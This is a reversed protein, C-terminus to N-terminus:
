AVGTSKDEDRKSMDFGFEAARKLAPTIKLIPVKHKKTQGAYTSRKAFQKAEEQTTFDGHVRTSGDPLTESVRWREGHGWAPEAPVHEVSFNRDLGEKVEGMEVRGGYKKVFKNLEKPLVDDYLKALGPKLELPKDAFDWHAVHHSITNTPQRNGILDLLESAEQPSLRRQVGNVTGFVDGNAYQAAHTIRKLPQNYREAQMEGSTWGIQDIGKEAAKRIARKLGLM